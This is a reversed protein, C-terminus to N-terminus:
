VISLVSSNDSHARHARVAVNRQRLRAAASADTSVFPSPRPIWSFDPAVACCPFIQGAGLDGAAALLARVLALRRVFRLTVVWGCGVCGAGDRKRDEGTDMVMLSVVLWLPLWALLALRPLHRGARGVARTEQLLREGM